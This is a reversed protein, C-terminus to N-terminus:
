SPEVTIPICAWEVVGNPTAIPVFEITLFPAKPAVAIPEPADTNAFASAATAM